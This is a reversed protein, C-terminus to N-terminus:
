PKRQQAFTWEVLKPDSYAGEWSNHGVDPYETYKAYGGATKIATVM